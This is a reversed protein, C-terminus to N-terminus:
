MVGASVLRIVLKGRAEITVQARMAVPIRPSHFVAAGTCLSRALSYVASRWPDGLEQVEFQVQRMTHGELADDLAGNEVDYQRSSRYEGCVLSKPAYGNGIRSKGQWDHWRSLLDDLKADTEAQRLRQLEISTGMM